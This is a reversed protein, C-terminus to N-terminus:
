VDTTDVAIEGDETVSVTLKYFGTNIDHTSRTEGDLKTQLPADDSINGLGLNRRDTDQGPELYAQILLFPTESNERPIEILLEHTETHDNRLEVHQAHQSQQDPDNETANSPLVSEVCGPTLCAGALALAGRRSHQM